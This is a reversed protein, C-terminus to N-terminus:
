TVNRDMKPIPIKQMVCKKINLICEISKFHMLHIPWSLHDSRDKELESKPGRKSGCGDGGLRVEIYGSRNCDCQTCYIITDM